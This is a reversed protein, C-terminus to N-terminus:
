ADLVKTREIKDLSSDLRNRLIYSRRSREKFISHMINESFVKNFLEDLSACAATRESLFERLTNRCGLYFNLWM